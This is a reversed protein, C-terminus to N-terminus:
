LASCLVNNSQRVTTHMCAYALVVRLQLKSRAKNLRCHQVPCSYRCNRTARAVLFHSLLALLVVFWCLPRDFNPPLLLKGPVILCVDLDRAYEYLFAIKAGARRRHASM